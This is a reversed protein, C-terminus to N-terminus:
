GAIERVKACIADANIGCYALLEDGAGSRPLRAVALSHVRVGGPALAAACAEGIGGAPYHDEVVVLRGGTGGAQEALAAAPLPKVSYLDVVRVAIGDAKLADYAALAEHVTVGAGAVTVQDDESQRLVKLQGLPFQEDNDYLIPKKPRATRIYAFGYHEAAAVILREAAVPDAPYVVISGPISRVLGLEELAMQSPGDAGISVGAHSGCLKINSRSVGAMRIQDSARVLFAGFSSVFPVRGRAALGMAVGVMNQEAIFCEIFKGPHADAFDQAYTSNKVDGDLAIIEPCVEAIKALVVGYAQRTALVDDKSYSPPEIGEVELTVPRSEWTEVTPPEADEAGIEALAREADEESLPKGHHGGKNRLFSVDHGKFTRAIVVGPKRDAICAQGFAEELEEVDHGDCPIANWGFARFRDAHADLDHGFMTAESQGLRNVDVVAVLNDLDHHSAFNAAEWVAGEAVEGDGLLVFCRRDSDAEKMAVAMGCGASLGQGLSGTAVQVYRYRPTPHGEIPSDIERLTMAEEESLTGAEVHAAYLVPAAHGKSLLFQDSEASVPNGPDYRMVRFFLMAVIEACSMCSTPHGSGARTTMLISRRRLRDAIAPVEDLPVNQRETM